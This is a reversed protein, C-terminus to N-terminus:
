GATILWYSCLRVASCADSLANECICPSLRNLYRQRGPRGFAFRRPNIERRFAFAIVQRPQHRVRAALAAQVRDQDEVLAHVARLLQQHTVEKLAFHLHAVTQLWRLVGLKSTADCLRNLVMLRM